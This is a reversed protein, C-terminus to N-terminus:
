FGLSVVGPSLESLGTALKVLVGFVGAKFREFEIALEALISRVGVGLPGDLQIRVGRDDCALTGGLEALVGLDFFTGAECKFIGCGTLRLSTAVVM